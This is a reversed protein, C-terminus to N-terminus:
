AAKSAWLRVFARVCWSYAAFSALGTNLSTLANKLDPDVRTTLATVATLLQTPSPANDLFSGIVQWPLCWLTLRPVHLQAHHRLLPLRTTGSPVGLLAALRFAGGGAGQSVTLNTTIADVNIDILVVEQFKTISTPV